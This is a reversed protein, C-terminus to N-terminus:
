RLLTDLFEPQYTKVLAFIIPGRTNALQLLRDGYRQLLFYVEPEDIM